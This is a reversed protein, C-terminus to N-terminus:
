LRVARWCHNFMSKSKVAASFFYIHQLKPLSIVLCLAEPSLVSNTQWWKLKMSIQLTKVTQHLMTVNTQKCFRIYFLGDITVDIFM